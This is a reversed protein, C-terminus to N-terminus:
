GAFGWSLLGSLGDAPEFRGDVYTLRTPGDWVREPVSHGADGPYCVVRRGDLDFSEPLVTAPPRGRGWRLAADATAFRALQQLSMIQPPALDIDRDWYRTLAQAPTTWLVETVEHDDAVALQDLPLQTVFFRTDFRKNTVSPRLPTIWRSWPVLSSTALALRNGGLLAQIASGARLAAAFGALAHPTTDTGGIFLGCEELTERIAAVHLARALEQPLEADALAAHMADAPMDCWDAPFAADAAAVKGGPFVWSGGLVPSNPHRRVMLVQLGQATDRLVMVTAAAVPPSDIWQANLEMAM